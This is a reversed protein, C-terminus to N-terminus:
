PSFSSRPEFVYKKNFTAPLSVLRDICDFFYMYIKKNGNWVGEWGSLSKNTVSVHSFHLSLSLTRSHPSIQHDM